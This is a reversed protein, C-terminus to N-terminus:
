LVKLDNFDISKSM